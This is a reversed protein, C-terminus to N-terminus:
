TDGPGRFEEPDVPVDFLGNGDSLPPNHSSSRVQGFYEIASALGVIRKM